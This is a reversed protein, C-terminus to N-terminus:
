MYALGAVAGVAGVVAAGAAARFRSASKPESEMQAYLREVAAKDGLVLLAHPANSGKPLFARAHFGLKIAEDRSKEIDDRPVEYVTADSSKRLSAPFMDRQEMSMTRSLPTSRPLSPATDEHGAIASSTRAPIPIGAEDAVRVSNHSSDPSPTSLSGPMKVKKGKPKVPTVALTEQWRVVRAAMKSSGDAEADDDFMGPQLLREVLEQSESDLSVLTETPALAAAAALSSRRRNRIAAKTDEHGRDPTPSSLHMSGLADEITTRSPIVTVAPSKRATPPSNVYPCGSRPHGARPRKCKSCTPAKRPTVISPENGGTTKGSPTAPASSRLTPAM